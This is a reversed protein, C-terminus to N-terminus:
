YSKISTITIEPINVASEIQEKLWAIRPEKNGSLWYYRDHESVETPRHTKIYQELYRSESLTIISRMWLDRSLACLGTQLFNINDLLIGLLHKDNM